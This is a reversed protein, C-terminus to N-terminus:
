ILGYILFSLRFDNFNETSICLVDLFFFFFLLVVCYTQAYPLFHLDKAYFYRRLELLCTAQSPQVCWCWERANGKRRSGCCRGLLEPWMNGVVGEGSQRVAWMGIDRGFAAVGRTCLLHWFRPAAFWNEWCFTGTFNVPEEASSCLALAHAGPSLDGQIFSTLVCSWGVVVEGPECWVRCYPDEPFDKFPVEALSISIWTVLDTM